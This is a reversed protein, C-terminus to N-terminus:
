AIGLVSDRTVVGELYRAALAGVADGWERPEATEAVLVRPIGLAAALRDSLEPDPSDPDRVTVTVLGDARARELLRAVKFRSLGLEAAITVKSKDNLYYMRAARVALRREAGALPTRADQVLDNM